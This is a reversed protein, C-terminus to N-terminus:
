TESFRFIRTSNMALRCEGSVPIRSGLSLRSPGFSAMVFCTARVTRGRDSRFFLRPKTRRRRQEMAEIGFKAIFWNEMWPWRKTRTKQLKTFFSAPSPNQKLTVFNLRLVTLRISIVRTNTRTANSAATLALTNSALSLM